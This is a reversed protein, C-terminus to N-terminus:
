SNEHRTRRHDKLFSKGYKSEVYELYDKIENNSVVLIDYEEIAKKKLDYNSQKKQWYSSKIEVLRGDVIFDPFYKNGNELTLYKYNRVINKGNDKCYVWFALEWSSDFFQNEYDYSCYKLGASGPNEYGYRKLCTEKIRDRIARDKWVHDVGYRELCTRKNRDKTVDAKSNHDVGYRELCTISIKKRVDKNKWPIETGYRELCTKTYKKKINENRLPTTTDYREIMTADRKVRIEKSTFSSTCGYRQLFTKRTAENCKKVFVPNKMVSDVGYRELCTRRRKENIIKQEEPTRKRM